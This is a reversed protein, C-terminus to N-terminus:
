TVPEGLWHKKFEGRILSVIISSSLLIPCLYLLAPQATNMFILGIFAFMLGMFYATLRSILKNWSKAVLKVLKFIKGFINVMFYIPLKNSNTFDYIIAYNVSLGPILIDGLGLLSYSYDYYFDCLRKSPSLHPVILVVPLQLGFSNQTIKWSM